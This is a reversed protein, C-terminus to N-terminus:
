PHDPADGKKGFLIEKAWDIVAQKKEETLEMQIKRLDVAVMDPLREMRGETLRFSIPHNLLNM